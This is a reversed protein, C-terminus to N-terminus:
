ANFPAVMTLFELRRQEPDTPSIANTRAVQTVKSTAAKIDDTSERGNSETASRTDKQASSTERGYKIGIYFRGNESKDDCVFGMSAKTNRSDVMHLWNEKAAEGM